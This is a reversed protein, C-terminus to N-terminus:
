ARSRIARKVNAIAATIPARARPPAAIAAFALTAIFPACNTGAVTVTFTPSVTVQVFWSPIGCEARASLPENSVPTNEVPDRAAVSECAPVNPYKQATCGEVMRPVTFTTPAAVGGGAVGCGGVGGGGGGGVAAGVAGGVGLGDGAGGVAAGFVGAALGAGEGVGAGVDVDAAGVADAM